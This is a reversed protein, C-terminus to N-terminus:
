ETPHDAKQGEQNRLERNLARLDEQIVSGRLHAETLTIGAQRGSVGPVPTQHSVAAWLAWLLDERSESLMVIAGARLHSTCTVDGNWRTQGKDATVTFKNRELTTLLLAEWRSLRQPGLDHPAKHRHRAYQRFLQDAEAQAQDEAKVRRKLAIEAALILITDDDIDLPAALPAPSTV